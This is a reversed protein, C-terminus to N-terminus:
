EQMFRHGDVYAVETLIDAWYPTTKKFAYYHTAGPVPNVSAGTMANLAIIMAKQYADREAPIDSLGDCTYSFQCDYAGPGRDEHVVDCVTNPFRPDDIRNLVLHAVAIQGKESEGRAEHYITRALCIMDFPEVDAQTQMALGAALAIEYFSLTM